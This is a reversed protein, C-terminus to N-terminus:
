YITHPMRYMTYVEVVCYTSYYGLMVPITCYLVTWHLGAATLVDAGHALLAHVRSLMRNNPVVRVVGVGVGM